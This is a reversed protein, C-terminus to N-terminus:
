IGAEENQNKIKVKEKQNRGESKNKSKITNISAVMIAILENTEKLVPEIPKVDTLNSEILLELWYLTEELEQLCIGLKSLFEQSSRARCGERYNAGVSTGSRLFQGGIVKLETRKPLSSYLLIIQLAYKKTRAKLDKGVM